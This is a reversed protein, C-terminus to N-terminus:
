QEDMMRNLEEQQANIRDETSEAARVAGGLVSNGGKPTIDLPLQGQSRDAQVEPQITEECGVAVACLLAACALKPIITM